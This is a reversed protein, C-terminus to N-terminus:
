DKKQHKSSLAPNQEAFAVGWLYGSGITSFEQLPGAERPDSGELQHWVIRRLLDSLNEVYEQDVLYALRARINQMAEICLGEKRIIYHCKSSLM